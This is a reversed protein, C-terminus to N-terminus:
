RAWTDGREFIIRCALDPADPANWACLKEMRSTRLIKVKM